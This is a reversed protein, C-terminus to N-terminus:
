LDSLNLLNAGDLRALDDMSAGKSLLLRCSTRADAIHLHRM